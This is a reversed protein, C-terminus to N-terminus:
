CRALMRVFAMTTSMESATPRRDRVRGLARPPVPVRARGARARCPAAWRRARERLYRMEASDDAPKLFELARGADDTLPLTFRNRFEILADGDLKKQQHTTM